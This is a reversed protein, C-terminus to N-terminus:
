RYPLVHHYWCMLYYAITGVFFLPGLLALRGPLTSRSILGLVLGLLVPPLSLIGFISSHLRLLM